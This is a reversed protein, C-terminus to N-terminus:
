VPEGSSASPITNGGMSPNVSPASSVPPPCTSQSQPGLINISVHMILNLILCRNFQKDYICKNM